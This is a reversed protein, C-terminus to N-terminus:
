LHELKPGRVLLQKIFSQQTIFIRFLFMKPGSIASVRSYNIMPDSDNDGFSVVSITDNESVGRSIKRRGMVKKTVFLQLSLIVVSEGTNVQTNLKFPQNLYEMGNRLLLDGLNLRLLGLVSKSREDYVKLNLDEVEPNTVLFMFGEEFVPNRSYKM